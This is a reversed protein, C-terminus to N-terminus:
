DPEPGLDRRHTLRRPGNWRDLLRRILAGDRFYARWARRNQRRKRVNALVSGILVALTIALLVAVFGVDEARLREVFAFGRDIM